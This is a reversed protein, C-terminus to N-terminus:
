RDVLVDATGDPAVRVTVTCPRCCVACDQVFVQDGPTEFDVDSALDIEGAEGCYPCQYKSQENM